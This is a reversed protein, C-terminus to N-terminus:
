EYRVTDIFVQFPSNSLMEFGIRIVQTTDYGPQNFSPHSVPLSLCTWTHPALTHEGDDAWAYSSGTQVYTLFAPSPGSELWAWAALTRGTLDTPPLELHIWLGSTVGSDPPGPTFDLQLAGPTPYGMSGTWSITASVGTNVGIVWGETTTDFTWEQVPTAASSCALSQSSGELSSEEIVDADQVTADGTSGVLAVADVQEPSCAAIALAIGGSLAGTRLLAATSM